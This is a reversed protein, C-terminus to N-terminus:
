TGVEVAETKLIKELAYRRSGKVFVAGRWEAFRAAVEETNAAVAVWEARAGNELAGARVAAAHDGIACVFDQARLRLGRGLARHFAEAEAGLEEMGGLVFLRPEEAPALEYFAELADAM